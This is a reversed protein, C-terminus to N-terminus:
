LRSLIQGVTLYGLEFRDWGFHENPAHIDDDDLGMGMLAVDAGSVAALKVVIPISAGCFLYRCPTGFIEEYSLVVTKVLSSDLDSRYSPAGGLSVVSVKLGKPANELFYARLQAFVKDPDLGPVLRCSIKASAKAPIVTKFGPGTYGGVMGNIELAPRLGNSERITRGKESCFAEVGFMKKYALEDFSMDVRSLVSAPLVQVDDYFGALTVSGQEDWLGALLTALARNPNLAIGGHVGSHLDVSSNQCVVECTMLGRIGVTVGPTQKSPIGCDIVLLHDAKLQAAHVSLIEETGHSGSEEEGEIFVKLNIRKNKALELWASIAMLSYFCQGKNDQAGRAYVEGGRETPEFPPSIWEELPDVPQVDYHHYILLTPRDPGAELCTAFVVPFGPGQWVQTDLGMNRLYSELWRATELTEQRYQPDTGISPLRLFHFFDSRIKERHAEYWEQFQAKSIM